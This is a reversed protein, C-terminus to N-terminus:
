NEHSALDGETALKVCTDPCATCFSPKAWYPCMDLRAIDGSQLASDLAALAKEVAKKGIKLGEEDFTALYAQVIGGANPYLIVVAGQNGTASVITAMALEAKHAGSLSRGPSESLNVKLLAPIVKRSAGKSESAVAIFRWTRVIALDLSGRETEELESAPVALAKTRYVAKRLADEYSWKSINSEYDDAIGRTSWLVFPRPKMLEWPRYAAKQGTSLSERVTELERTKEPDIDVSIADQLPKIDIIESNACNCVGAYTFDCGSDYYRCRGLTSPNSTELAKDLKATRQNMINRIRGPDKIVVRFVSLSYPKHDLQFILYHEKM